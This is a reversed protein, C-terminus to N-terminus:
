DTYRWVLAVTSSTNLVLNNNALLYNYSIAIGQVKGMLYGQTVPDLSDTAYIRRGAKTSGDPYEIKFSAPGYILGLPSVGVSTIKISFSETEYINGAAGYSAGSKLILRQGDFAFRDNTDL